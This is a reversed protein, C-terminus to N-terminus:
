DNSDSVEKRLIVERKGEREILEWEVKDGVSLGLFRLCETPVVLRVGWASVKSEKKKEEM